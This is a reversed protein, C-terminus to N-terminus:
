YNAAVSADPGAEFNEVVLLVKYGKRLVLKGSKTRKADGTLSTSNTENDYAFVPIKGWMQKRIKEFLAKAHEPHLRICGASARTGLADVDEAVGAAHIAYGTPIHDFELDFFMAFPMPTGWQKSMRMEYFRSSDLRFIGDPTGTWFKEEQERGTSALWQAYPKFGMGEREFVYLKQSYPGQQGRSVYLLMDFYPEIDDPVKALVREEIYEILDASTQASQPPPIPEQEEVPLEPEVAAAVVVPAAPSVTEAPAKQAVGQTPTGLGEDITPKLSVEVSHTPASALQPSGPSAPHLTIAKWGMAAAFLALGILYASILRM